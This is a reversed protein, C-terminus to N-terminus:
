PSPKERSSGQAEGSREEERGPGKDIDPGCSTKAAAHLPKERAETRLSRKTCLLPELAPQARRQDCRPSLQGSPQPIKMGLGPTPGTDGAKSPLKNLWWLLGQRAKGEKSLRRQPSRNGGPVSAGDRSEKGSPDRSKRVHKHGEKRGWRQSM